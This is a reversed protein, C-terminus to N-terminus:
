IWLLSPSDGVVAVVGFVIVVYVCVPVGRVVCMVGVVGVSVVVCVCGRVRDRISVVSIVCLCSWPGVCM